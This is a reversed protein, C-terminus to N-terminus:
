ARDRQSQLVEGVVEQQNKQPNQGHQLAQKWGSMFARRIEQRHMSRAYGERRGKQVSKPDLQGNSVRKTNRRQIDINLLALRREM